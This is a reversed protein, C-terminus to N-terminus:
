QTSRNGPGDRNPHSTRSWNRRGNRAAAEAKCEAEWEKDAKVRTPEPESELDFRIRTPALRLSRGSVSRRRSSTLTAARNGPGPMTPSRSPTVLQADLQGHGGEPLTGRDVQTRPLYARRNEGRTVSDAFAVADKRANEAELRSRSGSAGEGRTDDALEVEDEEVDVDAMAVEKPNTSKVGRKADGRLGEASGLNAGTPFPSMGPCYSGGEIVCHDHAMHLARRMKKERPSEDAYEGAFGVHDMKDRTKCFNLGCKKSAGAIVEHMQQAHDHDEAMEVDEPEDDDFVVVSEPDDALLVADPVHPKEVLDIQRM